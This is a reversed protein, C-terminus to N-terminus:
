NLQEVVIQNSLIEVVKVRRGTELYSGFTKVEYVKGHLEAKGIPRLASLAVGEMGVRLAALEGENVHSDITAKSAFRSWVNSKFCFYFIAGYAIISGGGVVWGVTDGFYRFSLVVGMIMVAFGILGILTTGPVFIIEVVLLVIGLSILSMVILWENM